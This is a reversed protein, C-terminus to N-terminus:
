LLSLGAVRREHSLLWEKRGPTGAYGGVGGAAPVVRHCPVVVAVPNRANASGVARSAGPQGVAAALQGYSRTEGFPIRGLEAWVATQFSSGTAALPLDFDHRAGAFYETLQERAAVLLPLSDDREGWSAPAEGREGAWGDWGVWTLGAECGVLVLEGLPTPMTTYSM